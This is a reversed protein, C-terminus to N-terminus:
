KGSRPCCSVSPHKSRTHAKVSVTRSAPLNLLLTRVQHPGEQLIKMHQLNSLCSCAAAGMFGETSSDRDMWESPYLGWPVCVEGFVEGELTTGHLSLTFCLWVMTVSNLIQFTIVDIPTTLLTSFFDSVQSMLIQLVFSQSSVRLTFDPYILLASSGLSHPTSAPVTEKLHSHSIQGTRLPSFIQDQDPFTTNPSRALAQRKIPFSTFLHSIHSISLIHWEKSSNQQWLFWPLPITFSLLHLTM